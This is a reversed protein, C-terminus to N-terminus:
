AASPKPIADFISMQGFDRGPPKADDPPMQRVTEGLASPSIVKEEILSASWARSCHINSCQYYIRRLQPSIEDSTRVIGRSGCVPCAFHPWRPRPFFPKKGGEVQDTTDDGGPTTM